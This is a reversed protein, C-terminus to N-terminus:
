RIAAEAVAVILTLAIMAVGYAIMLNRAAWRRM